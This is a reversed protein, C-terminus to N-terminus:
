RLALFAATLGLALAALALALRHEACWAGWNRRGAPRPSASRVLPRGAALADLDAALAALDHGSEALARELEAPAAPAIAGLARALAALGARDGEAAAEPHLAFGLWRPRGEGDFRVHGAEVAGHAVGRGHAHALAEALRALCALRAGPATLRAVALETALPAARGHDPEPASARRLESLVEGLDPGGVHELALFLGPSADPASVDLVRALGPHDLAALALARRRVAEGGLAALREPELRKLVVRRALRPDQALFVACGPTRALEEVVRYRGITRPGPATRTFQAALREMRGHLELRAALEARAAGARALVDTAADRGADREDLYFAFLRAVLSEGAPDAM